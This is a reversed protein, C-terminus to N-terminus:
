FSLVGGEAVLGGNEFGGNEFGGSLFVMNRLATWLYIHM